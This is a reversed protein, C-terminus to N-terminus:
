TTQTKIKIVQGSPTATPGKSNRVDRPVEIKRQQRYFSAILLNKFLHGQSKVALTPLTPFTPGTFRNVEGTEHSYNGWRVTWLRDAIATFDLLKTHTHNTSDSQEKSMETPFPANTM